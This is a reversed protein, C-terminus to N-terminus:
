LVPIQKTRHIQMPSPDGLTPMMDLYKGPLLQGQSSQQVNWLSDGGELSAVTSILLIACGTAMGVVKGPVWGDELGELESYSHVEALFLKM